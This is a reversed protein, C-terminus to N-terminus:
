ETRMVEFIACCLSAWLIDRIKPISVLQSSVDIAITASPV